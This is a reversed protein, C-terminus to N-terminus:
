GRLSTPIAPAPPEERLSHPNISFLGSPAVLLTYGDPTAKAALEGAINGNAGPRNKVVVPQGLRTSLSQGVLRSVLDAAGGPPFLVFLRIPRNPYIQALAPSGFLVVM